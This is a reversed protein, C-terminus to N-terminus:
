LKSLRKRAESVTENRFRPWPRAIIERYLERAEDRKGQETLFRGLGLWPLPDDPLDEMSQRCAREGAAWLEGVRDDHDLERYVKALEAAIEFETPRYRVAKRLERAAGAHEKMGLLVKAYARRGSAERPRAEAMSSYAARALRDRGTEKYLDGLGKYIDVNQPDLKAWSLYAKVAADLDGLKRYGDVVKRRLDMDKTMLEAAVAYQDLAERHKRQREYADGFFVRLHPKEALGKEAIEAEYRRVTEDLNRDKIVFRRLEGLFNRYYSESSKLLSMGRLLTDIAEESRGANWYAGALAQFAHYLQHDGLRGTARLARIALGYLKIAEDYDKANAAYQALNRINYYVNGYYQPAGLALRLAKATEKRADGKRGLGYLCRAREQHYGLGQRSGLNKLEELVELAEGWDRTDDYSAALSYLQNLVNQRNAGLELARRYLNAATSRRNANVYYQAAKVTRAPSDSGAAARVIKEVEDRIGLSVLGESGHYYHSHQQSEDEFSERLGDLVAKRAREILEAPLAGDGARSAQRCTSSIQTLANMGYRNPDHRLKEWGELLVRVADAHDGRNRYAESVQRCAHWLSWAYNGPQMLALEKEAEALRSGRALAQVLSQRDNQSNTDPEELLKRYLRVAIGYHTRDHQFQSATNRILQRRREPTLDGGGNLAYEVADDRRDASALEQVLAYGTSYDHPPLPIGLAEDLARTAEASRSRQKALHYELLKLYIIPAGEAGGALARRLRPEVERLVEEEKCLAAIQQVASQGYGSNRAAIAQFYLDIADGTLGLQQALQGAQRAAWGNNAYQPSKLLRRWAELAWGPRVQQWQSAYQQLLNPTRQLAAFARERFREAAEADKRRLALAHLEMALGADDPEADFLKSLAAFAEDLKGADLYAYALRAPWLPDRPEAKALKELRSLYVESADDTGAIRLCELIGVTWEREVADETEAREEADKLFERALEEDQSAIRALWMVLIARRRAATLLEARKQATAQTAKRREATEEPTPDDAPAGLAAEARTLEAFEAALKSQREDLKPLFERIVADGRYFQGDGAAKRAQRLVDAPSDGDWAEAGGSLRTLLKELADGTARQALQQGLQARLQPLHQSAPFRGAFELCAGVAGELDGSNLRAWQLSSAAYYVSTKNEEEALAKAMAEEAERNRGLRQLASWRITSLQHRYPKAEEAPRHRDLVGRLREVRDLAERPAQHQMAQVAGVARAIGEKTSTDEFLADLIALTEPGRRGANWLMNFANHRTDAPFDTRRIAALVADFAKADGRAYSGLYQVAGAVHAATGEGLLEIAIGNAGARDHQGFQYLATWVGGQQEAAGAIERVLKRAEDRRGASALAGALQPTVSAGLGKARELLELARAADGGAGLFWQAAQQLVPAEEPFRDLAKEWLEAALDPRQSNVRHSAASNYLAAARTPDREEEAFRGFMEAAEAQRGLQALYSGIQSRVTALRNEDEGKAPTAAAKLAADFAARMAAEDGSRGAVVALELLIEPVGPKARAVHSLAKAGRASRGVAECALALNLRLELEREPDEGAGRALLLREYEWPARRPQELALGAVDGSRHLLPGQPYYHHYYGSYARSSKYREEGARVGGFRMAARRRGGGSRFGFADGARNNYRWGSYSSKGGVASWEFSGDMPSSVLGTGGIPIDFAGGADADAFWGNDDGFTYAFEIGLDESEYLSLSDFGMPGGAPGSEAAALKMAPRASRRVGTSFFSGALPMQAEGMTIQANMARMGHIASGAQGFEIGEEGGTWDIMKTRRKIGYRRYDDESELVLFATFRSMIQYKVSLDIVDRAIEADGEAGTLGLGSELDDIMSKAWLRPIFRNHEEDPALTLDYTRQFEEDDARGTITVSGTGGDRIRGVVVTSSGAPLASLHDPLCDRTEFGKFSVKVDNLVPRSVREMIDDAAVFVDGAEAVRVYGGGLSAALERMFQEDYTEGVAVCSGRVNANRFLSAIERVLSSGELEGLTDLGDGIYVMEVPEGDAVLEAAERFAEQLDTAGLLTRGELFERVEDPTGADVPVFTERWRQPEMGAAIVDLEWGLSFDAAASAFETALAFGRPGVSPSADVIILLRKPQGHYPLEVKPALEVLFYPDKENEDKDGETGGGAGPRRNAFSLVEASDDVRYSVTFDREPTYDRAGFALAARGDETVVPEARHSECWLDSFGIRSALRFEVGVERLPNKLLKESVLPYSYTVKGRDRRLVQTYGLQIRKESHPEIPFVRMKFLNGGVWELLAPDRRQRRIYEFVQRARHRELVEGIIREGNVYMAFESVAADPPLPYYFTGEMRRGTNNVFVEDIFTRAVPHVVTVTVNHSKVELPQLDAHKDDVARALLEGLGHSTEDEAELDGLWTGKEWTPKFERSGEPGISGARGKTLRLSGGIGPQMEVTGDVVLCSMRDGEAHLRFETGEAVAEGGPGEVVFDGLGPGSAVLFHAEGADLRWRRRAGFGVVTGPALLVRSGEPGRLIAGSDLRRSTRVTDGPSFTTRRTVLRWLKSGKRRFVVLGRRRVPRAVDGEEKREV